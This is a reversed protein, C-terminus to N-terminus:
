SIILRDNVQQIQIHLTKSLVQTLMDLSTVPIVATIRLKRYKETKFDPVIGYYQAILRAVDELTTQQFRWKSEMWAAYLAPDFKTKILSHDTTDLRIRDGPLMFAEGSNGRQTIKVKGSTLGVETAPTRADVNFRTGLVTVDLSTTHVIFQKHDTEKKVEFFANGELFIERDPQDLFDKKYKLSSGANLIVVSSDPLTIAKTETINNISM